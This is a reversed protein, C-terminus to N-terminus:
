TKPNNNFWKILQDVTEQVSRNKHGLDNIAKSCDMNKPANKLTTLSEKSIPWQLPFLKDYIKIVPLLTLLLNIPLVMPIKGKNAMKALDKLSVYLGGLLYIQGKQAKSISSIITATLDRVDVLNYGGDTIFPLQGKHMDLITKGFPSPSLDQAGIIATPRLICADLDKTKISELVNQEALAKTWAYFFTKDTRYPRKEDFVEDNVPDIAVTSSSIYIFRIPTKECIKLLNQTGTVNVRLVLDQNKEGLSIASAAHIIAQCNEVLHGLAELNELDGQVWTINDHVFPVSKQRILARVQFGQHLLEKILNVGLHGTGGTVAISSPKTM